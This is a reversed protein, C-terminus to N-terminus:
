YRQKIHYIRRTNIAEEGLQVSPYLIKQTPM